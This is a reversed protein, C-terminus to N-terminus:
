YLIKEYKNVFHNSIRAKPECNPAYYNKSNKRVIDKFLLQNKSENQINSEKSKLLNLMEVVAEDIEEKTNPIIEIDHNDFHEQFTRIAHKKNTFESFSFLKNKTKNKTLRPLYIHNERLGFYEIFMPSNTFLIPKGFLMPIHYFGSSTAICFKSKAGLFVDMYESKMDSHAYDILGKIKPLKTSEKDGMRFVYGGKSIITKICDIYDEVRVNRWSSKNNNYTEGRYTPERMHLTVIWDDSKIGIKKLNEYGKDFLNNNESFLNQNINLKKLSSQTLNSALDLFPCCDDMPLCVGLPLSMISELSRMSYCLHDDEIFNVYKSFFNYLTKNTPKRSGILSFIKKETKLKSRHSNILNEVGYHNGLSGTFYVNSVFDINLLNLKQEKLWENRVLGYKNFYYFKEDDGLSNLTEAMILYFNPINPYKKILELCVKRRENIKTNNLKFSLNNIDPLKEINYGFSNILMRLQHFINNQNKKWKNYKM